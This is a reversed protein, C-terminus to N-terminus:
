SLPTRSKQFRRNFAMTLFHIVLGAFTFLSAVYPLLRGANKVVALTSIERGMSDLAYSAQYFTLDRYRLPNNMSILAERSLDQNKIEVQSQYSRALETNPYKEMKFDKLTLVFPLPFKQRRLQLYYTQNGARLATPTIEMGYLLVAGIKKGGQFFEFVGGPINKEPERNLPAPKLSQIGSDNLAATDGATKATYAQSNPFYSHIKVTLGPPDLTVSQGPRLKDMDVATVQRPMPSQQWLSLEWQHYASSLNSGEGERLSLNSEVTSHFTVFAAAFYLLLGLHIIGIGLYAWQKVFRTMAAAALNIFLVWLVLQAGPFPLFGWALFFWSHFFQEQAQYLGGKVQAVTGWFTLIFLLGLCTVTIKLSACNQLWRNQRFRRYVNM